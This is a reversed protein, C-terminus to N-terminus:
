KNKGHKVEILLAKLETTGVNEGSHTVAERWIVDGTMLETEKSTGDPAISKFKGRQIVYLLIDPHSHLAEKAGPKSSCELVRVKDNNLRKM